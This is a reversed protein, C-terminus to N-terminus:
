ARFEWRVDIAMIKDIWLDYGVLLARVQILGRVLKGSVWTELTLKRQADVTIRRQGKPNKWGRQVNKFM